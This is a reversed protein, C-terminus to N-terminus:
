LSKLDRVEIQTLVRGKASTNWSFFHENYFIFSHIKILMQFM